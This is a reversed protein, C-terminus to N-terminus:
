FATIRRYDDALVQSDEPLLAIVLYPVHEEFYAVLKAIRNADLAELSDLLMFPVAEHVDHTLYGALAFVLGMVERESESLHSVTDEYVTGSATQRVIHLEFSSEGRTNTLREIWIRDINEYDLIRIVREMEENFTEVAEREIDDIRSRLAELRSQCEARERELTPIREIAEEIDEIKAEVAELDSQATELEFEAEIAAQHLALVEDRDERELEAVQAKYTEVTEEVDERTAELDAVTERRRKLEQTARSLRHETQDREQQKREIETREAKVAEIEGVVEMRENVKDARLADLEEIIAEIDAREVQSGCTWCIVSEVDALLQEMIHSRESEDAFLERVETDDELMQRNFEIVGQLREIVSDLNRKREQYTGLREGLDSITRVSAPLEALTETLEDRETELADISDRETTIRGRVTELKAQADHLESLLQEQESQRSKSQEVNLNQEELKATKADVARKQEEITETLTHRREELKPLEQKKAELSSITESLRQKEAQVERIERDIADTDVPRMILEHLDENRTATQRAENTEFLFAFLSAVEADDTYPNGDTIVTRNAREYTRRFSDGDLELTVDGETADGKLNAEDGGLAGALARLFSTRNTANRGELITVGPEFSLEADEIGGINRVGVHAISHAEQSQKM